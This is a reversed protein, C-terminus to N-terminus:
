NKVTWKKIKRLILLFYITNIYLFVPSIGLIISFIYLHVPGGVYNFMSFGSFIFMIPWLSIGMAFKDRLVATMFILISFKVVTLGFLSLFVLLNGKNEPKKLIKYFLLYTIFFIIDILGSMTIFFYISKAM